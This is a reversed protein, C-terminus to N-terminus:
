RAHGGRRRLRMSQVYLSPTCAVCTVEELVVPHWFHITMMIQGAVMLLALSVAVSLGIELAVDRIRLLGVISWGPIALGLLLGLAFRVPGHVDFVTLAFVLVNALLLGASVTARSLRKQFIERKEAFGRPDFRPLEFISV